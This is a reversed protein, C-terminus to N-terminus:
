GQEAPQKAAEDAAEDVLKLIGKRFEGDVQVVVGPEKRLYTGTLVDLCAKRGIDLKDNECLKILRNAAAVASSAVILRAKLERIRIVKELAETFAKDDCWLCFLRLPVEQVTMADDPGLGDQLCEIFDKQKRTIGKKKTEM